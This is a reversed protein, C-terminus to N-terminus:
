KPSLSAQAGCGISWPPGQTPSKLFYIFLIKTSAKM